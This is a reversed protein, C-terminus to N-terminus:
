LDDFMPQRSRHTLHRVRLQVSEVRFVDRIEDSIQFRQLLALSFANCAATPVACTGRPCMWGGGSVNMLFYMKLWSWLTMATWYKMVLPKNKTSAPRSASSM